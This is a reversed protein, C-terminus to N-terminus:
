GRPPPVIEPEVGGNEDFFEQQLVYLDYAESATNWAAVAALYAQYLGTLADWEAKDLLYQQYLPNAINWAAIALLYLRYDDWATHTVVWEQYPGNVASWASWAVQDGSSNNADAIEEETAADGQLLQTWLEPAEPDVRVRWASDKLLYRNIITVVGDDYHEHYWHFIDSKKFYIMYREWEDFTPDNWGGYVSNQQPSYPFEALIMYTSTNPFKGSSQITSLYHELTSNQEALYGWFRYLQDRHRLTPENGPFGFRWFPELKGIGDGKMASIRDNLVLHPPVDDDDYSLDRLFTYLLRDSLHFAERVPREVASLGDMDIFTVMQRTLPTMFLPPGTKRAYRRKPLLLYLSSELEGDEDEGAPFAADVELDTRANTRAEVSHPIIMNGFPATNAEWAAHAENFEEETQDAGKVPEGPATNKERNFVQFVHFPGIDTHGGIKETYGYGHENFKIQLQVDEFGFRFLNTRPNGSSQRLISLDANGGIPIDFVYNDFDATYVVQNDEDDDPRLPIGYRLTGVDEENVNESEGYGDAYQIDDPYELEPNWRIRMQIGSTEIAVLAAEYEAM